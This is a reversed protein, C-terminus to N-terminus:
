GGSAGERAFFREAGLPTVRRNLGELAPSNFPAFHPSSKNQLAPTKPAKPAPSLAAVSFSDLTNDMAAVSAVGTAKGWVLFLTRVSSSSSLSRSSCSGALRM